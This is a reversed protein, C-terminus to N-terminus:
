RDSGNISPGVHIEQQNLKLKALADHHILFNFYRGDSLQISAGRYQDILSLFVPDEREPWPWPYLIKEVEISSLPFNALSLPDLFKFGWFYIDVPTELLDAPNFLNFAPVHPRHAIEENVLGSFDVVEGSFHAAVRLYDSQGVRISSDFSTTLAEGVQRDIAAHSSDWSYNSLSVSREIFSGLGCSEHILRCMAMRKQTVMNGRVILVLLLMLGIWKLPALRVGSIAMIIGVSAVPAAHVVMRWGVYHDDGGSLVILGFLGMPTLLLLWNFKAETEQRWWKSRRSCVFAAIVLLLFVQTPWAREDPQIAQKLEQHDLWAVRGNRHLERGMPLRGMGPGDWLYRFGSQAAELSFGATKVYVPNPFPHRYSAWHGLFYGWSLLIWILFAMIQRRHSGFQLGYFIIKSVAANPKILSGLLLAQLVVGVLFGEPRVWAALAAGVGLGVVQLWSKPVATMIRASCFASVLTAGAMTTMDMTTHVWYAVYPAQAVLAIAATGSVIATWGVDRRIWMPLLYVACVTFCGVLVCLWWAVNLPDASSIWTMAYILILHGFSTFGDTGDVGVNWAMDGFNLANQVYRTYVFADDLVMQPAYSLNILWLLLVFGLGAVVPLLKTLSNGKIAM